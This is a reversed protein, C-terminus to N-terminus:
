RYRRTRQKITPEEVDEDGRERTHPEACLEDRDDAVHEAQADTRGWLDIVVKSRHELQKGVELWQNVEERDPLLPCVPVAAVRLAPVVHPMGHKGEEVHGHYAPEHEVTATFVRKVDCLAELLRYRQCVPRQLLDLLYHSGSAVVRVQAPVLVLNRCASGRGGDEGHLGLVDNM